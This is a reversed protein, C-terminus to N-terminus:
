ATSCLLLMGAWVSDPHEVADIHRSVCIGIFRSLSCWGVGMGRKRRLTTGADDDPPTGRSMLMIMLMLMRMLVDLVRIINISIRINIIATRFQIYNSLIGTTLNEM